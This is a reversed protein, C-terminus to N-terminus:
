QEGKRGVQENVKLSQPPLHGNQCLFRSLSHTSTAYHLTGQQLHSLLEGLQEVLSMNNSSIIKNRNFKAAEPSFVESVSVLEDTAAAFDHKAVSEYRLIAKMKETSNNNCSTRKHNKNPNRNEDHAIQVQGDGQRVYAVEDTSSSTKNQHVSAISVLLQNCQEMKNSLEERIEKIYNMQQKMDSSHQQQQHQAAASRLVDPHPFPAAFDDTQTSPMRLQQANDTTQTSSDHSHMAVTVAVDNTAISKQVGVHSVAKKELSVAEAATVMNASNVRTQTEADSMSVDREKRKLSEMESLRKQLHLLEEHFGRIKKDKANGAEEESQLQHQLGEQEVRFAKLESSANRTANQAMSLDRYAAELNIQLFSVETSKSRLEMSKAELKTRLLNAESQLESIESASSTFGTQHQSQM